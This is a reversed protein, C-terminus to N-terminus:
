NFQNMAREKGETVIMRIADIISEYQSELKKLENRSFEKLVFDAVRDRSPKKMAGFFSVPSVGVRIRTFEKTGLADIVSQVGNHGGASSGYSIKFTGIPLDLEDSIVLLKDRSDCVKTVVKGSTNMFTGPIFLRVENGEVIGESVEGGFKSSTVFDPLGMKKQFGRVALMGANHRTFEYEKGPNGLGVITYM